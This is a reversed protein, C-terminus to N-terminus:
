VFLALFGTLENEREQVRITKKIAVFHLGCALGQEGAHELDSRGLLALRERRPVAPRLADDTAPQAGERHAVLANGVVDTAAAAAAFEVLARLFVDLFVLLLLSASRFLPMAGDRGGSHWPSPM